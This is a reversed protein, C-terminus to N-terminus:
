TSAASSGIRGRPAAWVAREAPRAARRVTHRSREVVVSSMGDREGGAADDDGAADDNGTQTHYYGGGPRVRVCLSM